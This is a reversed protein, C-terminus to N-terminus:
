KGKPLPALFQFRHDAEAIPLIEGKKTILVGGASPWSELLRTGEEKGLVFVATSLADAEAATPALVTASVLDSEAPKGQRPDLIHKPREYIASTSVSGESVELYGCVESTAKGPARVGIRWSERKGSPPIEEEPRAPAEEGGAKKRGRVLVNGGMDILVGSLFVETRAAERFLLDAALDASAGKGIGGLDLFRGPGELFATHNERDLVLRGLLAWQDKKLGRPIRSDRRRLFFRPFLLFLLSFLPPRFPNGLEYGDMLLDLAIDFAGNSAETIRLALALLEETEPSIRIGKRKSKKKAICHRKTRRNIRSVESDGEFRSWLRELRLVEAEALDLLEEKCRTGYLVIRVVTDMAFFTRHVASDEPVMQSSSM